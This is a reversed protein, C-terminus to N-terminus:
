DSMKDMVDMGTFNLQNSFIQNQLNSKTPKSKRTQKHPILM